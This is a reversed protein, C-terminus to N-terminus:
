GGQQAVLARWLANLEPADPDHTPTPRVATHVLVLKSAPDVFLAQGYIGMLVFQRRAGPLLWVQYGYGYYGVGAGPKLFPASPTTADLVWQKPIIQTGDWAGDSALLRGLRGWDRLTINLCCYAPEQGHGDIGWAADRETGIKTWIKDSLYDAITQGTASMLVLGLTETDLGKYYWVTDPPAARTNFQRVAAAAGAGSRSFIARGLAASDDNGDYVEHFAIGSAMHLLARIPTSGIESGKLSPVYTEATDDISHIKGESVAIGILMSTVTKAMSQSLFRDQETRGYQYHEALITNDKLILLGTTPHRSLYDAISHSAGKYTYSLTIEAAARAFPAPVAAHAVARTRSVSDYHSFTGIETHVTMPYGAPYNEASGYAEANPGSPNFVPLAEGHAQASLLLLALFIPRVALNRIPPDASEV